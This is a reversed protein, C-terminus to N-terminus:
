SLRAGAQYDRPCVGLLRKFARAFYSLDNFGVAYAVEKALAGSDALGECARELRYRMLHQGFSVGHEHRFVRCFQTPSLRCLAAVDELAIKHGYHAKMHAIAPHTRGHQSDVNMVSMTEASQWPFRISRTPGKARQHTLELLTALRQSLEGDSVPKVLLDWVRIRLAWLAVAESHGCTIMLIPLSPHAQRTCALAAIGPAHPEDFEFCLFKPAHCQIAASIQTLDRVCPVDFGSRVFGGMASYAEGTLNVWLFSGGSPVGAPAFSNAM